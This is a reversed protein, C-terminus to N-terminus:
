DGVPDIEKEQIALQFLIEEKFIEYETEFKDRKETGIVGYKKDVFQSLSTLYKNAKM